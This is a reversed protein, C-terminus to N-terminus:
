QNFASSLLLQSAFFFTNTDLISANGYHYFWSSKIQDHKSQIKEYGKERHWPKSVYRYLVSVWGTVNNFPRIPQYKLPAVASGVDGYVLSIRPKAPKIKSSSECQKTTKTKIISTVITKM